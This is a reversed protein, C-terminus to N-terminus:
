RGLIYKEIAKAVGDRDNTDTVVDAAEQVPGYANGMAVGLGSWKLMGLDNYGDGCAMVDASPIGLLDTLRKLGAGKEAGKPNVDLFYPTAFFIDLVDGFRERLAQELPVLKEHDEVLLFKSVPTTVEKRLSPVERIPMNCNISEALVYKHKANETLIHTDDYTLATCGYTDNLSLIEDYYEMPLTDFFVDREKACDYVSSGNSALVYGGMDKLGLDDALPMTGPVPRGTALVVTVGQAAAANLADRTRKTVTKESTTLTGDLDLALLRIPM